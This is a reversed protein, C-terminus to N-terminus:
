QAVPSQQVDAPLSGHSDEIEEVLNRTSRISRGYSLAARLLATKIDSIRVGVKLQGRARLFSAVQYNIATQELRDCARKNREVIAHFKERAEPSRFRITKQDM